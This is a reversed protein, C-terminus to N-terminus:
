LYERVHKLVMCHFLEHKPMEHRLLFLIAFETFRTHRKVSYVINPHRTYNDGEYLTSIQGYKDSNSIRFQNLDSFFLKVYPNELQEENLNIPASVISTNRVLFGNEDSEERDVEYECGSPRTLSADLAVIREVTGCNDCYGSGGSTCGGTHSRFKRFLTLKLETESDSDDGFQFPKDDKKFENEDEDYEQGYYHGDEWEAYSREKFNWSYSTDTERPVTSVTVYPIMEEGEAGSCYGGHDAGITYLMITNRDSMNVVEQDKRMKEQKKEEYRKIKEEICKLRLEEEEKRRYDEFERFDNFVGWKRANMLILNKVDNETYESKNESVPESDSSLGTRLETETEPPLIYNKHVGCLRNSKARNTCKRGSKCFAECKRQHM